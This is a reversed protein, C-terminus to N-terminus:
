KQFQWALVSLGPPMVNYGNPVMTNMLRMWSAEYELLRDKPVRMELIEVEFNEVGYEEIKKDVLQMEQDRGTHGTMHEYMRRHFRVAKGTYGRGNVLNTLKYIVAGKAQESKRSHRSAATLSMISSSSKTFSPPPQTAEVGSTDACSPRSKPVYGPVEGDEYDSPVLSEYNDAETM